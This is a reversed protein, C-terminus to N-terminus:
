IDPVVEEGRWDMNPLAGGASAPRSASADDLMAEKLDDPRDGLRGKAEIAAPRNERSTLLM